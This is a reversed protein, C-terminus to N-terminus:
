FSASLCGATASWWNQHLDPNQQWFKCPLREICGPAGEPQFHSLLLALVGQM